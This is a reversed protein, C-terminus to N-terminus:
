QSALPPRLGTTTDLNKDWHMLFFELIFGLSEAFCLLNILTVTCAWLPLSYLSSPFHTAGLSDPNLSKGAILFPLSHSHTMTEPQKTCSMETAGGLITTRKKPYSPKLSVIYILMATLEPPCWNKNTEVINKVGPFQSPSLHRAVLWM